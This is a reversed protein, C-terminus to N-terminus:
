DFKGPAKESNLLRSGRRHVHEEWTIGDMKVAKFVVETSDTACNMDGAWLDGLAEPGIDGSLRRM